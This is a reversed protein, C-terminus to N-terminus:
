APSTGTAPGHRVGDLVAFVRDATLDASLSLEARHRARAALDRRLAPDGVVRGLAGALAH